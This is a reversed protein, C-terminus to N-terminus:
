FEQDQESEHARKGLIHDSEEVGSSLMYVTGNKETDLYIQFHEGYISLPTEGKNYLACLRLHVFDQCRVFSCKNQEGGLLGGVVSELKTMDEKGQIKISFVKERM